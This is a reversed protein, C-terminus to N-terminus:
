FFPSKGFPSSGCLLLTGECQQPRLSNKVRLHKLPRHYGCVKLCVRAGVKLPDEMGAMSYSSQSGSALFATRHEAGMQGMRGDPGQEPINYMGAEQRLAPVVSPMMKGCQDRWGRRRGKGPLSTSVTYPWLSLCETEGKIVLSKNETDSVEKQKTFLSM